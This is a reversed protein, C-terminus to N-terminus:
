AQFRVGFTDATEGGVNAATLTRHEAGESFALVVGARSLAGTDITNSWFDLGAQDALRDLANTYLTAVFAQTGLAGYAAQFEASEIFGGAAQSLTVLNADLNNKWNALGAFDPLRSLATDYLRALSAANEDRDWIGGALLPATLAKNETSESFGNLVGARSTGSALADLWTARGDPDPGRGLVNQYLLDVYGGSDPTGFRAAYEASGLFSSSVAELTVGGGLSGIWYNLGEQDAMRGLGAQYLRAVRAAADDADLVLRGDIFRIEEANRYTDTQGDHRHVSGGNGPAVVSGRVSTLTLDVFDRGAGGDLTDNGLTGSLRDNSPGGTAQDDGVSGTFTTLRSIYTAVKHEAPDAGGVDILSRLPAFSGNARPLTIDTGRNEYDQTLSGLSNLVDLSTLGPFADPGAFVAVTAFLPNIRLEAGIDRRNEGLYVAPDDAIRLNAIRPDPGDAILAGPSGFTAARYRIAATDAHSEMYLQAMTGGLSHGTIAVQGYGVQVAYGDVAAILRAFDPYDANINRLDNISDERDDSGRFALVLTPSGNLQGTLVQAAANANRYVGGAYSEGAGPSLNLAGDALPAFGGPLTFLGDQYAVASIRALAVETGTTM